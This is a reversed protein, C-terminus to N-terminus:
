ITEMMLSGGLDGINYVKMSVWILDRGNLVWIPDDSYFGNMAMKKKKGILQYKM